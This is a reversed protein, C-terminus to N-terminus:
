INNQLFETTFLIEPRSGWPASQRYTVRVRIWDKLHKNSFTDLSATTAGLKLCLTLKPTGASIRVPCRWLALRVAVTQAMNSRLLRQKFLGYIFLTSYYTTPHICLHRRPHFRMALHNPLCSPPYTSLCFYPYNLLCHIKSLVSNVTYYAVLIWNYMNHVRSRSRDKAQLVLTWVRSSHWNGSLAPAFLESHHDTTRLLM